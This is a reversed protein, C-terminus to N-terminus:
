CCGEKPKKSGDRHGGRTAPGVTLGTPQSNSVLTTDKIQKALHMFCENVNLGNKASTEFFKMNYERALEEGQQKSVKVDPRDSKNGILIKAVDTSAHQEIQKVWNRINTFSSEETADYALIIGM